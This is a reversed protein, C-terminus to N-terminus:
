EEHHHEHSHGHETDDGVVTSAEIAYYWDEYFPDGADVSMHSWSEEGLAMEKDDLLCADLANTVADRDLEQGIIVIEQQRDGHNEDWLPKIAEELGEPWLEKDIEAWWPNGPTLSFHNGALSFEGQIGNFSALWVIGKSRLVISTDFPPKQELMGEFALGLKHSWFPRRARYTLSSIGYELTEPTHEGIRAEKLWGDHREADSMSFLGTGLVRDLPVKSFTSEILQASPNMQQILCKVQNREDVNIRDCKNVIIVNAFEVQDCLLHSITRQDEPDAQWDRDKLTQISDLESLFRSGDVVTVLTDIQAIDGLCLGTSDEFTFTEAVPMPESVGTSEILLYDFTGQAAIKAVEVLLDERLTCCICGNSMEVMHHEKQTISVSHKTLLAADINIEGMDNVLIAIKLGEYNALIHSMLTTKGSGLFGSLLTVPLKHPQGEKRSASIRSLIDANAKRVDRLMDGERSPKWEEAEVTLATLAVDTTSTAIRTAAEQGFVGGWKCPVIGVNAAEVLISSMSRLAAISREDLRKVAKEFLYWDYPSEDDELDADELAGDPPPATAYLPYLQMVINRGNPAYVTVPPVMELPKVESAEVETLEVIARIATDVPSESDKPLVSPLRMGDWKRSLSRVLVCRNGRLVLGGIHRECKAWDTNKVDPNDTENTIYEVKLLDATVDETTCEYQKSYKNMEVALTSLFLSRGMTDCFEPDYQRLTGASNNKCFISLLLSLGCGESVINSAVNPFVHRIMELRKDRTKEDQFILRVDMSQKSKPVRRQQNGMPVLVSNVFSAPLNPHILFINTAVSTTRDERVFADYLKLLLCCLDGEAALTVHELHLRQLLRFLKKGFGKNPESSEMEKQIMDNLAEARADNDSDEKAEVMAAVDVVIIRQFKKELYWGDNGGQKKDDDNNYSSYIDKGLLISQACGAYGHMPHTYNKEGDESDKAAAAKAEKKV